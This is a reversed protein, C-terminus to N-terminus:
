KCFYDEVERRIASSDVFSALYDVDIIEKPEVAKKAHKQWVNGNKPIYLRFKNEQWYIVGCIPFEQDDGANIYLVPMGNSLLEIGCPYDAYAEEAKCVYNELGFEVTWDAAPLYSLFKIPDKYHYAELKYLFESKTLFKDPKYLRTYKTELDLKQQSLLAIHADLDRIEQRLQEQSQQEM